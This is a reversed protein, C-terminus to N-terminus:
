AYKDEKKGGGDLRLEVAVSTDAPEGKSKKDLGGMETLDLLM